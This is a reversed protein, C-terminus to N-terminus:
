RTVGPRPAHGDLSEPGVVPYAGAPLSPDLSARAAALGVDRVDVRNIPRLFPQVFVGERLEEQFLEDNQFFNTPMLVIGLRAPRAM